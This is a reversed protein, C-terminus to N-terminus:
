KFALLCLHELVNSIPGLPPVWSTGENLTNDFRRCGSNSQTLEEPLKPPQPPSKAREKNDRHQQLLAEPPRAPLEALGRHFRDPDFAPGERYALGVPTDLCRGAEGPRGGTVAHDQIRNTIATRCSDVSEARGAVFATPDVVKGGSVEALSPMTLLNAALPMRPASGSGGALPSRLPSDALLGIGPIGRALDPWAGRNASAAALARQQLAPLSDTASTLNARELADRQAQFGALSRNLPASLRNAAALDARASLMDLYAQQRAGFAGTAQFPGTITFAPLSSAPGPPQTPSPSPRQHPALPPLDGPLPVPPPPAPAASSATTGALLIGMAALVRLLRHASM